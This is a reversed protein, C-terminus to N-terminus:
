TTWGRVPVADSWQATARRYVSSAKRDEISRCHQGSGSKLPAEASGGSLAGAVGVTKFFNRRKM